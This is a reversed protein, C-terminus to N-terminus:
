EVDGGSEMWGRFGTEMSAVHQYGMEQLTAAAFASRNGSACYIVLNADRPILAEVKTELNGRSIHLAGPIKGLNVENLDRCDLLTIKENRARMDRVQQPTVERIKAKAAAILDAASKM